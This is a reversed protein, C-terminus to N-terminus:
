LLTNSAMMIMLTLLLIYFISTGVNELLLNKDVIQFPNWNLTNNYLPYGQSSYFKLKQLTINM